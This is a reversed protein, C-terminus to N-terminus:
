VFADTQATLGAGSARTSAAALTPLPMKLQTYKSMLSFVVSLSEQLVNTSFTRKEHYSQLARHTPTTPSFGFHDCRGIM